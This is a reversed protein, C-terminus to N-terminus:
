VYMIHELGSYTVQSDLELFSPSFPPLFPLSSSGSFVRGKNVFLNGTYLSVLDCRVDM